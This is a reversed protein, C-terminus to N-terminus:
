PIHSHDEAYSRGPDIVYEKVLKELEPGHYLDLCKLLFLELHHPPHSPAELEENEVATEDTVPEHRYPKALYESVLHTMKDKAEDYEYRSWSHLAAATYLTDDKVKEVRHYAQSLCFSLAMDKFTQQYSRAPAPTFDVLDHDFDRLAQLDSFAPVTPATPVNLEAEAEIDHETVSQDEVEGVEGVEEALALYGPLSLAVAIFILCISKDKLRTLCNM